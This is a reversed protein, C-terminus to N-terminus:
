LLLFRAALRRWRSAAKRRSRATAREPAALVGGAATETLSNLYSVPALWAVTELHIRSPTILLVFSPRRLNMANPSIARM